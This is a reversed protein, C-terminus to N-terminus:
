SKRVDIIKPRRVVKGKHRFTEMQLRDKLMEKTNDGMTTPRKRLKKLTSTRLPKMSGTSSVNMGIMAEVNRDSFKKRTNVVKSVNKSYKTFHNKKYEKKYKNIKGIMHNRLYEESPRKGTEKAPEMRNNGIYSPRGVNTRQRNIIRRDQMFCKHIIRSCDNFGECIQINGTSLDKIILAPVSNIGYPIKVRKRTLSELSVCKLEHINYRKKLSVLETCQTSQLTWLLTFKLNEM